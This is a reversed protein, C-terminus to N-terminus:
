FKFDKNTIKPQQEIFNLMYCVTYNYTETNGTSVQYYEDGANVYDCEVFGYDGISLTPLNWNPLQTVTFYRLMSNDCEDLKKFVYMTYQGPRTAVVEGNFTVRM